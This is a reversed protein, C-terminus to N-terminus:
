NVSYPNMIIYRNYSNEIGKASPNLAWIGTPGRGTFQGLVLEMMYM